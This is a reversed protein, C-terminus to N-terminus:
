CPCGQRRSARPEAEGLIERVRRLTARTPWVGYLARLKEATEVLPLLVQAREGYRQLFAERVAPDGAAERAQELLDQLM